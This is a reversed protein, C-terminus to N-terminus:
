LDVCNQVHLNASHQVLATRHLYMCGSGAYFMLTLSRHPYICLKTALVRVSRPLQSDECIRAACTQVSVDPQNITSCLFKLFWLLTVIQLDRPERGVSIQASAIKNPSAVGTTEISVHCTPDQSGVTLCATTVKYSVAARSKCLVQVFM